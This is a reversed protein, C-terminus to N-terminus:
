ESLKIKDKTIARVILALISWVMGIVPLNAAIFNSVVNAQPFFAAVASVIGGIASLWVTKSTFPSKSAVATQESM